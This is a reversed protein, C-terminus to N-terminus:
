KESNEVFRLAGDERKRGACKSVRETSASQTHCWREAGSSEGM